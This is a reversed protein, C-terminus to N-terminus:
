VRESLPLLNRFDERVRRLDFPVFQTQARSAQELFAAEHEPFRGAAFEALEFCYRALYSAEPLSRVRGARLQDIVAEFAALCPGAKGNWYYIVAASVNMKPTAGRSPLRMELERFGTELRREAAPWDGARMADWVAM